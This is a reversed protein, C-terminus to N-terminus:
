VFGHYLLLPGIYAHGPIKKGTNSIAGTERMGRFKKEPTASQVLKRASDLSIYTQSHVKGAVVLFCVVLITKM